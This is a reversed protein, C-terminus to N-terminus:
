SELSRQKLRKVIERAKAVIEKITSEAVRLQEASGTDITMKEVEEAFSELASAGAVFAISRGAETAQDPLKELLNEVNTEIKQINPDTAESM